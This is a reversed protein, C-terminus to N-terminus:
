FSSRVLAPAGLCAEQILVGGWWRMGMPCSLTHSGVNSPGFEVGSEVLMSFRPCNMKERQRLTEDAFHSYFDLM